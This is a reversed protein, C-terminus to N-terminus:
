LLASHIESNSSRIKRARRMFDLADDHRGLRLLLLGHNALASVNDPQKEIGRISMELAITLNGLKKHAVAAGLLAPPYDSDIALAAEYAKLANEDDGIQALYIASAEHCYVSGADLSLAKELLQKGETIQRRSILVVSLRTLAQINTPQVAVARRFLEVSKEVEGSRKLMVGLNVHPEAANPCARTAQEGLEIAKSVDTKSAINMLTLWASANDPKLEIARHLAAQAEDVRELMLLSKGLHFHTESIKKPQFSIAKKYAAIADEFRNTKRYAVGLNGLYVPNNPQISVAKQILEIARDFKGKSCLLIGLLHLM